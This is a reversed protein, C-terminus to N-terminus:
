KRKPILTHSKYHTPFREFLDMATESSGTCLRSGLYSYTHTLDYYSRSFVFGSPDKDDKKVWGCGAYKWQNPDTFDIVVEELKNTAEIITILEFHLDLYQRHVEPAKSNDPREDPNRGLIECAHNYDRVKKEQEM